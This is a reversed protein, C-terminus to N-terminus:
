GGLDLAANLVERPEGTLLDETKRDGAQTLAALRHEDGSEHVM